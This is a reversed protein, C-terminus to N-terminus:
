QRGEGRWRKIEELGWGFYSKFIEAFVRCWRKQHMSLDCPIYVHKDLIFMNVTSIDRKREQGRERRRREKGREMEIEREIDTEIKGERM